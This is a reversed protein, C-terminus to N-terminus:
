SGVAPHIVTKRVVQWEHANKGRPKTPVLWGFRVLTEATDLVREQSRFYKPAYIRIQRPTISPERWKQLWDLLLQAPDPQKTKEAIPAPRGRSLREFLNM